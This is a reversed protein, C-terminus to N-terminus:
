DTSRSPTGSPSLASLGNPFFSMAWPLSLGTTVDTPTQPTGRPPPASTDIDLSDLNAMGKSTTSTARVTNTGAALNASM